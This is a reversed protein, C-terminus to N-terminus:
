HAGLEFTKEGARIPVQLRNEPPVFPCLYDESYACWPNYARNFDVTWKGDATLHESAELDLYRGAPYTQEGNTEDRFPVFLRQESADSRYAQLRCEQGNVEFRFEGWRVMERTGGHTDEVTIVDGSDHRYLELEFHLDPDPPFYDLGSFQSRDREPIPSQPHVAFFMDKRRRELELRDKWAAVAMCIVRETDAEEPELM